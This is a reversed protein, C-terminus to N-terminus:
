LNQGRILKYIEHEFDNGLLRVQKIGVAAIQAVEEAIFQKLAVVKIEDFVHVYATNM